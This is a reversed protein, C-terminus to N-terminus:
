VGPERKDELAPREAWGWQSGRGGGDGRVPGAEGGLHSVTQPSGQLRPGRRQSPHHSLPHPTGQKQGDSREVPTERPGLGTTRPDWSVKGTAVAKM